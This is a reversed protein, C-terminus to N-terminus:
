EDGDVTLSEDPVPTAPQRLLGRGAALAAHIAAPSVPVSHEGRRRVISIFAGEVRGQVIAGSVLFPKLEEPQAPVDIVLLSPPGGPTGSVAEVSLGEVPPFLTQDLAKHYRSAKPDSSLPRVAVIRDGRGDRKTKLGVVLLGGGESNAFRAVDQALEIKEAPDALDYTQSKCELEQSEYQGVLLDPRGARLATKVLGRESYAASQFTHCLDYFSAAAEYGDAVTSGRRELTFMVNYFFLGDNEYSFTRLLRVERDVCFGQALQDITGHLDDTPDSVAALVEIQLRRSGLLDFSISPMAWEGAEPTPTVVLRVVPHDHLVPDNLWRGGSAADLARRVSALSAPGVRQIAAIFQSPSHHPAHTFVAEGVVLAGTKRLYRMDEPVGRGYCSGDAQPVPVPPAKSPPCHHVNPVQDRMGLPLVM